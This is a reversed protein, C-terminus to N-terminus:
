SRIMSAVKCPDGQGTLDLFAEDCSVAQVRGCHHHLIDYVKDAVQEYAAFNYPVIELDPCKAKADRVFMGARVGFARAPYNASSIEGTGRASDSHCVAVPKGNLEPRERVVVAM